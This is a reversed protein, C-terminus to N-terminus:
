PRASARRPGPRGAGRWGWDRWPRKLLKVGVLWTAVLFGLMTSLPEILLRWGQSADEPVEKMTGLGGILMFALYAGLAVLIFLGIHLVAWGVRQLWAVFSVRAM